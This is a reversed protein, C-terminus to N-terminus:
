SKKEKTLEAVGKLAKVSAMPVRGLGDPGINLLYNIGLSNLHEKIEFIQEATKFDHDHYSFGWSHNM